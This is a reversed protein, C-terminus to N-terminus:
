LYLKFAFLFIEVITVKSILLNHKEDYKLKHAFQLFSSFQLYDFLKVTVPPVLGHSGM